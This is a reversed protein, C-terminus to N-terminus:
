EPCRSRSRDSPSRFRSGASAAESWEETTGLYNLLEDFDNSEMVYGSMPITAGGTSYSSAAHYYRDSSHGLATAGTNVYLDKPLDKYRLPIKTTM